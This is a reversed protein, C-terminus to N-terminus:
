AGPTCPGSVIEGAPGSKHYTSGGSTSQACYDGQNAWVIKVDKIGADYSTQLGAITAGAYGGHDANYAELAPILARVNAQATAEDSNEQYADGSGQLLAEIAQVKASKHPFAYRGLLLGFVFTAAATVAVLQWLKVTM